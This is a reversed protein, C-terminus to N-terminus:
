RRPRSPAVFEDIAKSIIGLDGSNVASHFRNLGAANSTPGATSM